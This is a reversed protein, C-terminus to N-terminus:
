TLDLTRITGDLYGVLLRAADLLVAATATTHLRYATWAAGGDVSRYLMQEAFVLVDRDSPSFTSSTLILSISLRYDLASRAWTVGKDASTYVGDGDTGAYVTGDPSFVVSTAAIYPLDAVNWSRGGNSSSFVGTETGILATRDSPYAPSIAVALVRRDLLSFNGAYWTNGRDSSYFVGRTFTAAMVFGDDRYAPSLALASVVPPPEPLPIASWRQGGDSSRLVGGSAGTFVTRDKAFNPSLALATTSLRTNLHLSDYASRWTSGSDDSRYLGSERAAFCTGDAAALAYVLDSGLSQTM